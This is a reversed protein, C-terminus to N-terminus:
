SIDEDFRFEINRYGGAIKRGAIVCSVIRVLFAMGLNCGEAQYLAGLIVDFLITKSVWIIARLIPYHLDGEQVSPCNNRSESYLASEQWTPNRIFPKLIRTQVGYNEDVMNSVGKCANKKCGGSLESCWLLIHVIQKLIDFHFHAVLLDGAIKM